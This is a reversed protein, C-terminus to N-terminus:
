VVTFFKKLKAFIWILFLPITVLSWYMAWQYQRPITKVPIHQVKSIEERKRIEKELVKIISDQESCIARAEIGTSDVKVEVKAKKSIKVKMVPKGGSNQLEYIPIKLYSTDAPFKIEHFRERYLTDVQVITDTTPPFKRACYRAPSCSSLLLM